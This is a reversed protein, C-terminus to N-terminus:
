PAVASIPPSVKEGGEVQVAYRYTSGSQLGSHRFATTDVPFLGTSGAGVPPQAWWHLLYRSSAGNLPSWTVLLDPARLEVTLGTPAPGPSTAEDRYTSTTLDAFTAILDFAGPALARYLRQSDGIGGSPPIWTLDRARPDDSPEVSTVPIDASEGAADFRKVVYTYAAGQELLLPVSAHVEGIQPDLLPSTVGDNIAEVRYTYSAGFDDPFHRYSTTRLPSVALDILPQEPGNPATRVYVQYEEAHEPESWQLDVAPRLTGIPDASTKVLVAFARVDVIVPSGPTAPTPVATVPSSWPGLASGFKGRVRYRYEVCPQPPNPLCNQLSDHVFSPSFSPDPDPVAFAGLRSTVEIRYGTAGTVPDWELLIRGDGATARVNRPAEQVVSSSTATLVPSARGSVGDADVAVVLFAYTEDYASAQHVYPPGPANARAGSGTTVTSGQAWYVSYSSAGPVPDWSLTVTLGATQSALNRPAPLLTQEPLDTNGSGCATLLVVAGAAAGRLLDSGRHGIWARARM